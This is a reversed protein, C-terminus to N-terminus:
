VRGARKEKEKMLQEKEEKVVEEKKLFRRCTSTGEPEDQISRMEM